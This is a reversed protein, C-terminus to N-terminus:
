SKYPRISKCPLALRWKQIRKQLDSFPFREFQIWVIIANGNNDMAVHPGDAGFIGDPSINDALSVPYALVNRYESKFYITTLATMNVGVIIANGNDDM